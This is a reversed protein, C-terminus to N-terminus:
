SRPDGEEVQQHTEVHKEVVLYRDGKREIVDEVDPIEHGPLVAFHHADKRLQEYETLALVLRQACETNACECILDLEGGWKDTLEVHHTRQGPSVCEENAALREERSSM